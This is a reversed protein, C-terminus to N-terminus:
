WTIIYYQNLSCHQAEEQTMWREQTSRGWPDSWAIEKTTPNYGTILVQHGQIAPLPPPNEPANARAQDLLKQWQDWDKDRDCLSYRQEAPEYGHVNVGWFIPVGDDIYHRIAVYDLKTLDLVQVHRGYDYLTADLQKAIDAGAEGGNFGANGIRSLTYMDGPVGTYRLVREWTAPVCYGKPGQDAMPIQTIVVDGNPRHEVADSLKKGIDDRSIRETRGDNDALSIPVIRLLNYKNPQCTLLFSVDNWDWRLTNEKTVEDTGFVTQKAEGFLKTLADILTGEESKRTPEFTAEMSMYKTVYERKRKETDESSEGALSHDLEYLDYAVQGIGRYDGANAFAILLSTPHDDADAYIAVCYAGVGLIQAKPDTPQGSFYHRYSAEWQTRGELGLGLRQALLLSTEQWLSQSSFFPKGFAANVAEVTVNGPSTSGPSLPAATSGATVATPTPSPGAVPTPKTPAPTVQSVTNTAVAPASAVPPPAPIPAVYDTAAVAIRVLNGQADRLTLQGGAASVLAYRAGATAESVGTVEGTASVSEM